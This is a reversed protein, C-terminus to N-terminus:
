KIIDYFVPMLYSPLRWETDSEKLRDLLNKFLIKKCETESKTEYCLNLEERTKERAKKMENETKWGKNNRSMVWAPYAPFTSLIVLATLFLRM